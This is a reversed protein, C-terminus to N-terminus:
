LPKWGKKAKKKTFIGYRIAVGYRSNKMMATLM